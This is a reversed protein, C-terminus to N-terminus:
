LLITSMQNLIETLKKMCTVKKSKATNANKLGLERAISEMDYRHFFFLRLLKSCDKPMQDLARNLKEKDIDPENTMESLKKDAKKIAQADSLYIHEKRKKVDLIKKDGIDFLYTKISAGDYVPTGRSFNNYVAIIAEQFADKAVDEDCGFTKFSRFIFEDRYFRYLYSLSEDPNERIM